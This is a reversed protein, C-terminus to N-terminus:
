PKVESGPLTEEQVPRDGLPEGGALPVVRYLGDEVRLVRHGTLKSLSAFADTLSKGSLDATVKAKRDVTPDIEIRVAHAASLATYVDGVPRASFKLPVDLRTAPIPPPPRPISGKNM